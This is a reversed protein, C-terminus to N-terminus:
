SYVKITLPHLGNELNEKIDKETITYMDAEVMLNHFKKKIEEESPKPESNILAQEQEIVKEAEAILKKQKEVEVEAKAKAYTALSVWGYGKNPDAIYHEPGQGNRNSLFFGPITPHHGTINLIAGDWQSGPQYWQARFPFRRGSGEYITNLKVPVVKSM